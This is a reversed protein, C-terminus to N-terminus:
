GPQIWCLSSLLKLGQGHYAVSEWVCYVTFQPIDRVAGGSDLLSLPVEPRALLHWKQQLVVHDVYDSYGYSWSFKVDVDVCLSIRDKTLQWMITTLLYTPPRLFSLTQM